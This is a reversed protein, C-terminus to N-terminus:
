VRVYSPHRLWVTAALGVVRGGRHAITTTHRLEIVRAPPHGVGGLTGRVGLPLVDGLHDAIGGGLPPQGEVLGILPEGGDVFGPEAVLQGAQDHIQRHLRLNRARYSTGRGTKWEPELHVKGDATTVMAIRGDPGLVVVGTQSGPRAALAAQVAAARLGATLHPVLGALFRIEHGEFPGDEPICARAPRCM